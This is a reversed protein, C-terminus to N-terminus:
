RVEHLGASFKWTASTRRPGARTARTTNWDPSVWTSSPTNQWLPTGVANEGSVSDGVGSSHPPPPGRGAFSATM